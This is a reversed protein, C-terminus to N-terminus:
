LLIDNQAAKECYTVLYVIGGSQMQENYMLIEGGFILSKLLTITIKLRVVSTIVVRHNQASKQTTIIDLNCLPLNLSM